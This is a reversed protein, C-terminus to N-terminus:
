VAPASGARSGATGGARAPAVWDDQRRRLVMEGEQSMGFRAVAGQLQEAMASLQQAQAVMEQVQASVEETSASVEEAAASTEQSVAAVKEIAGTVERSSNAMQQTAATSQEVATSVIDMVKVVQQSAAEMQGVASAIHAVQTTATGVSSLINKLALGAEEALATGSEVETMGLQIAQVAEQTEKQVQAILEAIERTSHSTREALKRVEDAVVAFGRGYEGARAAEIAANLALLNTQEAIDDITEVISNIEESYKDLDQVERTSDITRQRITAIGDVTKQVSEAGSLAAQQAQRTAEAVERSAAAVKTISDNLQAVSSSAQDVSNAQDQSAGAILDIARSLQDVSSAADQVVASQDQNGRAVEQITHAIQQTAAGAQTSAASMEQSAVALASASSAVSGVMQRLNDTMRAFALGLADREGRPSVERTLDGQCIAEAVEVMSRLYSIMSNFSAAMAGIEDRGRLRVEQEVDGQALGEAAKSVAGVGMAISRTLYLGVTLSLLTALALMGVMLPQSDGLTAESEQRSLQAAAVNLRTLKELAEDLATLKQRANAVFPTITSIDKGERKLQLVSDRDAKYLPWAADFSALLGKEEKSLQSKSYSQMHEFLLKEHEAIKREAEEMKPKDQTLVDDVLYLQLQRLEGVAAGLDQIPLLDEDYMRGMLDNVKGLNGLTVWGVIGMLVLVIAFGGWIKTRITTRM